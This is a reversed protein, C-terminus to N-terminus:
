NATKTPSLSHINGSKPKCWPSQAMWRELVQMPLPESILYGQCYDCGMDVLLDYTETDEVGEATVELGMNHSLDITSKVITRNSEDFRMNRVFSMDIKLNDIPLKNLQSLSTYGTGFDDISLKIGMAHLQMLIDRARDTDMM